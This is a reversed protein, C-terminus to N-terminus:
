WASSYSLTNEAKRQSLLRQGQPGKLAELSQSLDGDAAVDRLEAWYVLGVGRETDLVPEFRLYNLFPSGDKRYNVVRASASLHQTVASGLATLVERNTDRGQLLAQFTQGQVESLAYGTLREFAPNAHRITRGDAEAVVIAIQEEQFPGSLVDELTNWSSEAGPSIETQTSSDLYQDNTEALQLQRLRDSFAEGMGDVIHSRISEWIAIYWQQRAVFSLKLQVETQSQGGTPARSTFTWDYQLMTAYTCGDNTAVIRAVDDAGAGAPHMEVNYNVQDGISGFLGTRIGFSVEATKISNDPHRTLIRSGTCWPMWQPYLEFDALMKYPLHPAANLIYRKVLVRTVADPEYYEESNELELPSLEHEVPLVNLSRQIEDMEKQVTALRALLQPRTMAEPERSSDPTTQLPQVRLESSLNALTENLVEQTADELDNQLKVPLQQVVQRAARLPVFALSRVLTLGRQPLGM